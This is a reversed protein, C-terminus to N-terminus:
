KDNKPKIVRLPNKSLKVELVSGRPLNYEITDLAFSGKHGRYKVKFYDAEKIEDEPSPLVIASKFIKSDRPYSTFVTPWGTSGTGTAIILGSNEHYTEKGNFELNYKGMKIFKLGDEGVATENLARGFFKGDLYVDQRTWEEIEYNNNFFDNLTTDINTCCLKGKSRKDNKINLQPKNKNFAATAIMTGDGGISFVFNHQDVLEKSLGKRTVITPSYRNEDLKTLIKQINEKQEIEGNILDKGEGNGNYYFENSSMKRVVLIKNQKM